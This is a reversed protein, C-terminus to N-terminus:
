LMLPAPQVPIVSVTSPKLPNKMKKNVQSDPHVILWADTQFPRFPKSTEMLFVVSIFNGPISRVHHM